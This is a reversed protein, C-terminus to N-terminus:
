RGRGLRPRPGAQDAQAGAERECAFKFLGANFNIVASASHMFSIWSASFCRRWGSKLDNMSVRTSWQGCSYTVPLLSMMTQASSSSRMYATEEGMRACNNLNQEPAVEGAGGDSAAGSPASHFYHRKPFRLIHTTSLTFNYLYTHMQQRDRTSMRQNRTRANPITTSM